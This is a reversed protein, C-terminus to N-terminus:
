EGATPSSIGPAFHALSCDKKDVPTLVLPFSAPFPPHGTPARPFSGWCVCSCLRAAALTPAAPPLSTLVTRPGACLSTSAM